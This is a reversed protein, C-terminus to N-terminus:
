GSRSGVQSRASPQPQPDGLAPSRVQSVHLGGTQLVGTTGLLPPRSGDPARSTHQSALPRVTALAPRSAQVMCATSSVFSKSGVTDDAARSRTGDLHMEISGVQTVPMSTSRMQVNFDRRDEAGM